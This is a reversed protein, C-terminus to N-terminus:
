GRTPRRRAGAPRKAASPGEAVSPEQAMSPGEPSRPAKQWRPNQQRPRPDRRHLPHRQRRPPPCRPRRRDALLLGGRSRPPPHPRAGRRPRGDHLSRAARGTAPRALQAARRLRDAAPGRGAAARRHDLRSPAPPHSRRTGEGRGGPHARGGAHLESPEALSPFSVLEACVDVATGRKPSRRRSVERGTADCRIITREVAIPHVLHFRHRDLLHDLKKRMASFGRTQIEICLGGRVLDIVFGGLPQEVLDGPRRYWEKLAAHLPGENLVGVTPFSM